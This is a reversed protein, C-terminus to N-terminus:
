KGGRSGGPGDNGATGDMNPGQFDRGGITSSQPGGGDFMDRLGGYGVGTARDPSLGDGGDRRAFAAPASQAVAPQMPAASFGGQGTVPDIFYNAMAAYQGPSRAELEALAQEYLPMTSYGQIGGAFTQPQPAIEQGAASGLGYAEAAASVNRMAAEQMPTMAAVVPGSYPAYGFSAIEEARAINRKLPDELYKPISVTSTQSGGKGGSM